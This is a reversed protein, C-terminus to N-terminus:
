QRSGVTTQGKGRELVRELAMLLLILIVFMVIGSADHLVGEAAEHGMYYTIFCLIMVRVVNGFLAFPIIFSSMFIKKGPSGKLTYIYVLGLSLLTILSRFGSCPAGMYIDHEGMRLFLGERALPYGMFTLLRAVVISVGYRMPLTVADLVGLPPPVLFILYSIPFWVLRMLGPGYVFGAIGFALPIFAFTSVVLYEQREGIIFLGLAIIILLGAWWATRGPRSLAAKIRERKTWVLYLSIPLIFYAHTYDVAEWRSTYLLKIVPMFMAAILGWLIYNITRTQIRKM